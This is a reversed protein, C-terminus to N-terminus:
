SVNNKDDNDKDNKNEKGDDNYYQVIRKDGKQKRDVAMVSPQM